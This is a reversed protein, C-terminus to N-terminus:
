IIQQYIGGGATGLKWILNQNPPIVQLTQACVCVGVDFFFELCRGYSGTM